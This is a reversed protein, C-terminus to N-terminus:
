VPACADIEAVTVVLGYEMDCRRGPVNRNQFRQQSRTTVHVCGIFAVSCREIFRYEVILKWGDEQQNMVAAIDTAYV